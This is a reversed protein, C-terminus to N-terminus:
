FATQPIFEMMASRHHIGNVGTLKMAVRRCPAPFIKTGTKPNVITLMRQDRYRVIPILAHPSAAGGLLSSIM